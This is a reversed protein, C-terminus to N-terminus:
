NLYRKDKPPAKSGGEIVRLPPGAARRARAAEAKVAAEARLAATQAQIQRLRLKLYFRRLPSRDGFLWGALMGGFPTVLGEPTHNNLAIVNLVSLVFIIAVMGGASVPLVFFMRVQADRNQLAWAVAIAEVMGLGGFWVMQNLKPVLAGVAVQTAFAFAAAGFLFILMRRAGWRSELTPALFYLGLLTMLFHGPSSPDHLIPATFLRWIQGRLVGPTSGAMLQFVSSGVEVWNISLALGVWLVTIVIMMGSIAKGPRPLAFQVPSPRM